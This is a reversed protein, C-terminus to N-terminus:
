LFTKDENEKLYTGLIVFHNVFDTNPGYMNLIVIDREEINLELAQLRGIIIESHQKISFSLKPNILIGLGESNNSTGSFFCREGM